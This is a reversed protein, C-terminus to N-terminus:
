PRAAEATAEGRYNGAVAQLAELSERVVPIDTSDAWTYASITRVPAPSLPIAAVDTHRLFSVVLSPMLAAGLGSAVLSQVSLNDDTACVVDPTFGAEACIQRFHVSCRPCGAIWSEDALEALDLSTAGALRHDGPVLVVLPDHVLPVRVFAEDDPEDAAGYTFALVVDCDGARLQEFSDPPEADSLEIRINPHLERLRSFAAPVLTASASPFTCVRVTGSRMEVIARVRAEARALGQLIPDAHLELMRGAETLQLSRGSRIFVPTGLAKELAKMQQSIAPQSYGLERAAGTYSGHLVVAKFVAV